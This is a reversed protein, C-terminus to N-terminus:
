PDLDKVVEEAMTGCERGTVQKWIIEERVVRM